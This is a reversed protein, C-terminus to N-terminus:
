IIDFVAVDVESGANVVFGAYGKDSSSNGDCWGDTPIQLPLTDIYWTDVESPCKVYGDGTTVFSNCEVCNEGEEVGGKVAAAVDEPSAKGKVGTLVCRKVMKSAALPNADISLGATNFPNAMAGAKVGDPDSFAPLRLVLRATVASGASCSLRSLPAKAVQYYNDSARIRGFWNTPDQPGALYATGAYFSSDPVSTALGCKNGSGCKTPLPPSPSPSPSSSSAAAAAADDSAAAPSPSSSASASTPSTADSAKEAPPDSPASDQSQSLVFSSHCLLMLLLAVTAIARTPVPFSLRLHRM